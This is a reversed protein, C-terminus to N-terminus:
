LLNVMFIFLVSFSPEIIARHSLGVIAGWLFWRASVQDGQGLLVYSRLLVVGSVAAQV